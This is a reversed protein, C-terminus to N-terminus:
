GGRNQKKNDGLVKLEICGDGTVSEKESRIKPQSSAAERLGTRKSQAKWWLNGLTKLARGLKKQNTKKKKKNIEV